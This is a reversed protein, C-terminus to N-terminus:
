NLTLIFGILSILLCLPSYVYQDKRAFTSSKIKKFFGVYKFDGIARLLFVIPILWSISHMAWSPIPFIFLQVKLLYFVGFLLLGIGVLVSDRKTPKMLAEGDQSTPIADKFAWTGGLFWYIHIMSLLFFILFLLVGLIDM